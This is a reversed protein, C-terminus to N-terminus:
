TKKEEVYHSYWRLHEAFYISINKGRVFIAARQVIKKILLYVYIVFIFTPKQCDMICFLEFLKRM